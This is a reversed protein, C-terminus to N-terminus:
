NATSLVSLDLGLVCKELSKKHFPSKKSSEQYRPSLTQIPHCPNDRNPWRTAMDSAFLTSFVQLTRSYPRDKCHSFVFNSVLLFISSHDCDCEEGHNDEGGDCQSETGHEHLTTSILLKSHIVIINQFAHCRLIGRRRIIEHKYNFYQAFSKSIDLVNM